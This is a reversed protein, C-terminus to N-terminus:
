FEDTSNEDAFSKRYVADTPNNGRPSTTPALWHKLEVSSALSPTYKAVASCLTFGLGSPRGSKYRRAPRQQARRTPRALGNCRHTFKAAPQNM